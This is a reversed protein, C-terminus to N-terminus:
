VGEGASLVKKVFRRLQAEEKDGNFRFEVKLVAGVTEQGSICGDGGKTMPEILMSTCRMRFGNLTVPNPSQGIAIEPLKAM